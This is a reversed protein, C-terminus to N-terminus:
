TELLKDIVDSQQKKEDGDQDLINQRRSIQRAVLKSYPGGLDVLQQHTGQEIIRGDHVVAIKDANVVTSLRHAVLVVTCGGIKILNDIAAQVAAESETDLASTAEDLFLLPSKRMIARAIAIRQKQGGSLRVGREGCRTAYGDEFSEIFEHANALRAAEIMMDQTYEEMGYTINEEITGAFLQTDQAVIAMHRHLTRLNLDKYPVGDLIIRGGPPDYFRMLLHVLTSKGGGSKGVLACTTGAAIHLDLDRLVKNDPRMQYHFNVGELRIDGKVTTVPTGSEPDIDPLNDMLSIVRQAAGAARTFSNLIGMLGNYASNIMNWYLQFTILAGVTLDPSNPKMALTGGYWLLLVGTGLDLYSTLAYTGAGVYGDQIGKSVAETTARLYNKIELQETGFARVTRINGIAQTAVSSADGLAAWIQRNIFQSWKAYVRTIQIIPAISTIALISLRWSTYFCMFLGGVLGILNQLFSSLVTQCPAVMANADNSLRSTLEGTTTGDFFAIDQVIISQFLKNRVDNAMKSGVVGFCLSRVGGFFGTAVSVLIYLKINYEFRDTDAKIVTDLIQGQFNPLLLSATSTALLCMCALAILPSHPKALAVARLVYTTSSIEAEDKTGKDGRLQGEGRSRNKKRFCNQCMDFDCQKCRYGERIRARCLDCFHGAVTNDYYLRHPHLAKFLHGDEKTLKEVLRKTLYDEINIFVIAAGLLCAHLTLNDGFNFSVMKIGTQMQCWTSIMFNIGLVINRKRTAALLANHRQKESLTTPDAALSAKTKASFSSSSPLSSSSASSGLLPEKLSSKQETDSPSKPDGSSVVSILPSGNLSSASITRVDAASTAITPGDNNISAVSSAEATAAAAAAQQAVQSYDPSGLRAAWYGFLSLLLFRVITLTMHDVADNRFGDGSFIRSSLHAADWSPSWGNISYYFVVAVGMDVIYALIYAVVSWRHRRWELGM